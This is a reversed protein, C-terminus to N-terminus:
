RPSPILLQNFLDTLQQRLRFKVAENVRDFGITTLILRKILDEDAPSSAKADRVDLSNVANRLVGMGGPGSEVTEKFFSEASSPLIITMPLQQEIGVYSEFICWARKAYAPQEITDLLVLM